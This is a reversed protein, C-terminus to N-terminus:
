PRSWTQAAADFQWAAAQAPSTPWPQKAREQPTLVWVDLLEGQTDLTFNVVVRRGALAGSLMQMNNFGRVRAGPALRAPQGNLTLEPPQLVAIEGRLANAPFNRPLQEVSQAFASSAPWAFAAALACVVVCRLM